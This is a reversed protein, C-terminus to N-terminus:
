SPSFVIKRHWDLYRHKPQHDPRDPVVKLESGAYKQLAENLSCGTASGGVLVFLDNSLSFLGEDFLKHHLVCLAIGNRVNAPGRASHWRIHAAELGIPREEIKLDFECVACRSGYAGMVADRFARNRQLRKVLEKPQEDMDYIHNTVALHELGIERLIDSHLSPPFYDNLLIHVIQTVLGPSDELSAIVRESLGGHINLNRLESIRANDGPPATVLDPRDIEWLDKDKCLRWFPYHSNGRDGPLGFRLILRKLPYEVEAFPVLRDQGVFHRGIALLLLLPKHPSKRGRTVKVRINQVRSLLSEDSFRRM